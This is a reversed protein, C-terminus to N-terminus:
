FFKIFLSFLLVTFVVWFVNYGISKKNRNKSKKFTVTLRRDDVFDFNYRKEDCFIDDSSGSTLDEFSGLLYDDDDMIRLSYDDDMVGGKGSKYPILFLSGM